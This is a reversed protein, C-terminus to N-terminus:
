KGDGSKAPAANSESAQGGGPAVGGGSGSGNGGGGPSGGGGRRNRFEEMMKAREEESMNAMRSRWQEAMKAREEESMNSMRSRFDDGGDSGRDGREGGDRSRQDGREGDRREGGRESPNAGHQAGAAGDAVPAGAGPGQGAGAPQAGPAPPTAGPEGPKDKVPEPSFGPPASMLVTQGETLGSLIQVWRDNYKGVEVTRMAIAGSDRVFVVNDTGNRFVCQVPVFLTDAIQDVLIEISCSMGPRMEPHPDDIAVETRYLRTNPNAFWSNQDAMMAVFRVRGHFEKGALADAKIECAQGIQVMKLVSEHLSVQAIM